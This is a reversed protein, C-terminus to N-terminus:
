FFNMLIFSVRKRTIRYFSFINDLFLVLLLYTVSVLNYLVTCIMCPSRYIYLLGHIIYLHRRLHPESRFVMLPTYLKRGIVWTPWPQSEVWLINRESMMGGYCARYDAWLVRTLMDQHMYLNVDSFILYSFIINSTCEGVGIQRVGHPFKVYYKLICSQWIKTLSCSYWMKSRRWHREEKKRKTYM